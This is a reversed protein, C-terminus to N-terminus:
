RSPCAACRVSASRGGSVCGRLWVPRRGASSSRIPVPWIKPTEGLALREHRGAGGMEGVVVQGTHIGVRVRLPRAAQRLLPSDQVAGVIRLGARVAQIADDEHAVPHGFYVLLGDGLYQAIYGAFGAVVEACLEQYSRIVDRLEEPDLQEALRTSGVVDCFLVTLQRREAAPRAMGSVPTLATGCQDCFRAASRNHTGCQPCRM